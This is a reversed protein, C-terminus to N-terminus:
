IRTILRVGRHYTFYAWSWELLVLLRNKFGILFLIHGVLWVVWAPFGKMKLPGIQVVAANRSVTAMIGKDKYFFPLSVEGRSKRLINKAGHKGMQIAVPALGPLPRGGQHLFSALDGIVFVEPHGPISLDPEVLVRGARDLPVGLSRALPSAEVGAAWIITRAEFRESGAEVLGESIKTVATGTKVEVGHKRLHSEAALSLSEPFAPLVRPGAELLVIRARAPDFSRFERALTHRSIEVLAGAMEVGTPGGGVIVFTLLSRRRNEDSEMEAAEFALLIRRRIDLADEIDKLGPAYKRWEEHGFYAHSAGAALVLYDYGTEGNDLILKRKQADVSRAEALLVQVNPSASLIHRIPQAIEAPSLGATAVQYLFPQFLHHNRKDVLTVRVPQKSLTFAAYLGGFGGGVIVVHPWYPKVQM